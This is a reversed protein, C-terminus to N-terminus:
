HFILNIEIHYGVFALVRFFAGLNPELLFFLHLIGSPNVEKKKDGSSLYSTVQEWLRQLSNARSLSPNVVKNGLDADTIGETKMWPNYFM